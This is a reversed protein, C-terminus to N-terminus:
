TAARRGSSGVFQRALNRPSSCVQEMAVGLAAKYKIGPASELLRAADEISVVESMKHPRRMAVLGRM